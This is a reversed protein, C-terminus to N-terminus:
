VLLALALSISPLQAAYRALNTLTNGVSYRRASPSIASLRRLNAAYSRLRLPQHRSPPAKRARQAAAISSNPVRSIPLNGSEHLVLAESLRRFVLALADLVVAFEHEM